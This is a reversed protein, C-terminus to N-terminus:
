HTHMHSRIHTHASTLIHTHMHMCAHTIHTDTCTCAHTNTYTCACIHAYSHTHATQPIPCYFAPKCHPRHVWARQGLCQDVQQGKKADMRSPDGSLGEHISFISVREDARGPIGDGVGHHLFVLLKGLNSSCPSGLHTSLAGSALPSTM